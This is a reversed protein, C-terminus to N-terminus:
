LIRTAKSKATLAFNKWDINDLLVAGPCKGVEFSGYIDGKGLAIAGNLCAWELLQTMSVEPFNSHLCYMEKVMDLDDNSSLSDTGLAIALGNKRMLPIPPLANRSTSVVSCLTM